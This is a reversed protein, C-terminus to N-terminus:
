CRYQQGCCQAHYTDINVCLLQYTISSGLIHRVTNSQLARVLYEVGKDGINNVSIDLTTLTQM